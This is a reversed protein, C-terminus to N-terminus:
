ELLLYCATEDDTTQEAQEPWRPLLHGNVELTHVVCRDLEVAGVKAAEEVSLKQFRGNVQVMMM